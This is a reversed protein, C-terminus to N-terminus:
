LSNTTPQSLWFSYYFPTTIISTCAKTFSVERKWITANTRRYDIVCRTVTCRVDKRFWGGIAGIEIDFNDISCHFCKERTRICGRARGRDVMIFCTSDSSDVPLPRLAARWSHQRSNWTLPPAWRDPRKKSFRTMNYIRTLDRTDFRLDNTWWILSVFLVILERTANPNPKVATPRLSALSQIKGWPPGRGYWSRWARNKTNPIYRRRSSRLMM